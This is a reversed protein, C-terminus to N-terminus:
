IDAGITFKIFIATLYVGFYVGYPNLLQAKLYTQFHQNTHEMAM